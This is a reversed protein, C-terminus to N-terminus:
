TKSVAFDEVIKIALHVNAHSENMLKVSIRHRGSKCLCLCPCIKEITYEKFIRYIDVMTLKLWSCMEWVM